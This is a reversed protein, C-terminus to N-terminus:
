LDAHQRQWEVSGPAYETADPGAGKAKARESNESQVMALFGAHDPNVLFANFAGAAADVQDDHTANPFVELESIFADNWAAKVLKVNGGEVQAAFPTARVEKPGTEREARVVYGALMRTLHSIQAKGAQGPDQSLSIEVSAGDQQATSLIAREINHASDRTRVVDEVYFFGSDDRGMKLGVTWDPDSGRSAETAALDWKRIRKADAPASPVVGFWHRKFMGGELPAPRQQYLSAWVQSGVARRIRELRELSFREPHLAEGARRYEEHAEAIAPFRLVEWAEGDETESDRLLRGALDDENWRTLIILIGAGPAQRTYLTSRYWDWVKNRYVPSAAQEADKIPDDILLIDGGQGTIAGGVGASRYAGRQCVVEFADANKLWNGEATTKVNRSNLRTGPFTRTYRPDEIIRQVDRNISNALDAGYSAAIIALDPNRGLAYAPFRRSAIESKGSRPPASIMLRPSSKTRVGELFRDLRDALERSFWGGQYDPKTWTTFDYLSRRALEIQIAELTPLQM